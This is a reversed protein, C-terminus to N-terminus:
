GRAIEAAIREAAAAPDVAGTIPRGIVLLDAGARVAAAPTAVRAQDGLDAGAPRIPIVLTAGPYARRAEAIELPSCVIGAAGGDRAIGALRAVAAAPPGAVGLRALDAADHSTLVTVALVRTDPCAAVARRIM